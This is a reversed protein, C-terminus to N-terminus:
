DLAIEHSQLGIVVPEAGPGDPLLVAGVGSHTACYDRTRDVGLVFFATALADAEAATPALATASAIGEAPWGSRPDLNHGLKRGNYELHRFTAASTGLARERLWVRGIRREEDWPHKLGVAWGRPDGDPTGWAYVSSHGGHLLFAPIRCQDRVVEAMRDVAYGKGISGLNIELGPRLYRVSRNPPTLVVHRMGTRELATQREADSPLRRPGRFFGWAKVLAGASVDFAGGTEATLREALQLLGFLREEVLVPAYPALRNLNVVDSSGRYVTLQAELRDVLEFVTGSLEATHPTGFPLLMEFTTAMARHSLRLLAVEPTPSPPPPLTATLENLAGLVPGAAQTFQRPHLFDRRNM